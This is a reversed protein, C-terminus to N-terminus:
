LRLPGYWHFLDEGNSAKSMKACKWIRDALTQNQGDKGRVWDLYQMFETYDGFHIVPAVM